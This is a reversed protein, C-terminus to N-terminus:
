IKQLMRIETVALPSIKKLDKKLEMQIRNSIAGIFVDKSSTEKFSKELIERARLRIVSAIGKNVRFRSILLPKIRYKVKDKSEVVISDDIKRVAKRIVRKVHSASIRYGVLETFANNGEVGKVLFDLSVSQKRPDNTLVMLNISVKKGVLDQPTKGLGEGLLANDFEGKGVIPFWKKKGKQKSTVM